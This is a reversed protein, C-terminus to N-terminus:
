DKASGLNNYGTKMFHSQVKRHATTKSTGHEHALTKYTVGAEKRKAMHKGEDAAV